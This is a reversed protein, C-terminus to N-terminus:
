ANIIHSNPICESFHSGWCPRAFSKLPPRPHLNPASYVHRGCHSCQSSCELVAGFFRLELGSFLHNLFRMNLTEGIKIESKRTSLKLALLFQCFVHSMKCYLTVWFVEGIKRVRVWEVNCFIYERLVALFAVWKSCKGAFMDRTLTLFFMQVADKRSAWSSCERIM